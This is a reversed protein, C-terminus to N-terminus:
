ALGPGRKRPKGWSRRPESLHQARPKGPNRRECSDFVDRFSNMRILRAAIAAVTGRTQVIGSSVLVPRNIRPEQHAAGSNTNACAAIAPETVSADPPATGPTVTSAALAARM